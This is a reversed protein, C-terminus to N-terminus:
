FKFITPRIRTWALTCGVAFFAIGVNALLIILRWDVTGSFRPNNSDIPQKIFNTNGLFAVFISLIKATSKVSIYQMIDFRRHLNQWNKHGELFIDFKGIGDTRLITNTDTKRSKYRKLQSLNHHKIKTHNLTFIFYGLTQNLNRLVVKSTFRIWGSLHYNLFFPIGCVGEIHAVNNRFIYM